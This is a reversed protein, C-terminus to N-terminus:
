SENENVTVANLLYLYPEGAAAACRRSLPIAPWRPLSSRPARSPSGPLPTSETPHLGFPSLTSGSRGKTVVRHRPMSEACRWSSHVLPPALESPPFSSSPLRSLFHAVLPHGTLRFTTEIRKATLETRVDTPIKAAVRYLVGGKARKDLRKKSHLAWQRGISAVAGVAPQSLSPVCSLRLFVNPKATALRSDHRIEKTVRSPKLRSAYEPSPCISCADARHPM